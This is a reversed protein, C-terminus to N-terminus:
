FRLAPTGKGMKNKLVFQKCREPNWVKPAGPFTAKFGAMWVALDEDMKINKLHELNHGSFLPFIRYDEGSKVRSLAVLISKITM